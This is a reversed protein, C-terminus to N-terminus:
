KKLFTLLCSKINKIEKWPQEYYNLMKKVLIIMWDARINWEWDRFYLWKHSNEEIFYQYIEKFKEIDISQKFNDLM